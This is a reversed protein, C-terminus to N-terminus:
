AAPPLEYACETNFTTLGTSKKITCHASGYHFGKCLERQRHIPVDCYFDLEKTRPHYANLFYLFAGHGDPNFHKFDVRMDDAGIIRLAKVLWMRLGTEESLEQMIDNLYLIDDNVLHVAAAKNVSKRYSYREVRRGCLYKPNAKSHKSRNVIKSSVAAFHIEELTVSFSNRFSSPWEKKTSWYTLDEPARLTDWVASKGFKQYKKALAASLQDTKRKSM